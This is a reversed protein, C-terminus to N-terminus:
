RTPRIKDTPMVGDKGPRNALVGGHGAGAYRSVDVDTGALSPSNISRRRYLFLKGEEREWKVSRNALM